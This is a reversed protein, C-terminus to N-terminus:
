KVCTYYKFDILLTSVLGILGIDIIIESLIGVGAFTILLFMVGIIFVAWGSKM